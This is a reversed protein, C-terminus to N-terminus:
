DDAALINRLGRSRVRVDPTGGGERPNVLRTKAESPYDVYCMSVRRDGGPHSAVGQRFRGSESVAGWSGEPASAV